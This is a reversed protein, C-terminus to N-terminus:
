DEWILKNCLGCRYVYAMMGTKVDPLKLYLRPVGDCVPCHSPPEHPPRPGQPTNM